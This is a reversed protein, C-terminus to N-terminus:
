RFIRPSSPVEDEHVIVDSCRSAVLFYDGLNAIQAKRWPGFQRPITVPRYLPRTSKLWPTSARIRALDSINRRSIDLMQM